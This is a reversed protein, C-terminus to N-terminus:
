YKWKEEWFIIYNINMNYRLKKLFILLSKEIEESGKNFAFFMFNKM